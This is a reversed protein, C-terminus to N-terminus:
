TGLAISLMGSWGPLFIALMFLYLVTAQQLMSDYPKPTLRKKRNLCFTATEVLQMYAVSMESPQKETSGITRYLRQNATAMSSATGRSDKLARLFEQGWEYTGRTGEGPKLSDIISAISSLSAALRVVSEEIQYFKEYTSTVKQALVIGLAFGIIAFLEALNMQEFWFNSYELFWTV